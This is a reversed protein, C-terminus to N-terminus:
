SSPMMCMLAIVRLTTFLSILSTFENNVTLCTDVVPCFIYYIQVNEWYNRRNNDVCGQIDQTKLTVSLATCAYKWHGVVAYSDCAVDFVM